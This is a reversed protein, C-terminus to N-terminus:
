LRLHKAGWLFSKPKLYRCVHSSQLIIGIKKSNYHFQKVPNHKINACNACEESCSSYYKSEYHLFQM